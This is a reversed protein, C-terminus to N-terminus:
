SVLSDFYVSGEGIIKELSNRDILIIESAEATNKANQTYFANTIVM